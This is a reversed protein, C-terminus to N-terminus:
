ALGHEMAFRTAASRTNVGLKGYIATLHTSVTRRSVILQEAVQADTLGQAVLRLVEAERATLGAPYTTPGSAGPAATAAPSNTGNGAATTDPYWGLLRGAVRRYADLSEPPATARQELEDAWTAQSHRRAIPAAAALISRVQPVSRTHLALQLAEQLRRVAVVDDGTGAALRGQNILGETLGWQNGIERFLLMSQEYRERAEAPNGLAVAVDGLRNYCLAVGRTDGMEQRIELSQTFFWRASQHEGLVFAVKGLNTLSFAMSWRNGLDQEIMYSQQSWAQATYYDACEYAIQGLINCAVAQGYRDGIAEAMARGEDALTRAPDYEGLYACIVGLYNLAFVLDPSPGLPRLIALSRELLQKAEAQRGLHFTFWGQRALLMGYIPALQPNEAARALAAAATTFAAAGEGFWSRMDYFHFLGLAARGLIGWEAGDDAEPVRTPHRLGQMPRSLRPHAGDVSHERLPDAADEAATVGWRWAARIQEIEQDLAALAALQAAGRLDATRGAVFALYYGAHRAATAATEGAEELQEAAYQRLVEPVEYRGGARSGSTGVRHVLSKDVLAALQPLGAGTVAAAAERTFSGRFVALRRLVQQEDPTLLMWSHNFVARLGQQQMPLDQSTATLFDLNESIEDAIEACSLMRIWSAALEIGLPLGEVLRCIRIIAPRNEPTLTFHPALAQATQVFLQVAGDLDADAAAPQDPAPVSLGTLEVVREGRLNLRERSTVLITLDPADQLLATLFRAGAVVREFGDLVLLLAKERLYELLQTVPSDPGSFTLDLAAAVATALTEDLPARATLSSLPVLYVGQPFRPAPAATQALAHAAELALRTKGVGGVGTITVLRCSTDSLRTMLETSESRRGVFTTLAAPLNDHPRAPLAPGPSERRDPEVSSSPQRDV